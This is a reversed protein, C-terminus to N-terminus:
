ESAEAGHPSGSDKLQKLQQLVAYLPKLLTRDDPQAGGLETIKFCGQELASCTLRLLVGSDFGFISVDEEGVEQKFELVAEACGFLFSGLIPGLSGGM